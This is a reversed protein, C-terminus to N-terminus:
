DLHQQSELSPMTISIRKLNETAAMISIPNTNSMGSLHISPSESPMHYKVLLQNIASIEDKMALLQQSWAMHTHQLEHHLALITNRTDSQLYSCFRQLLPRFCRKLLRYPPRLMFSILRSKLGISKLETDPKFLIPGSFCAYKKKYFTKLLVYADVNHRLVENKM